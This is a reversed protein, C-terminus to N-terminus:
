FSQQVGANREPEGIVFVREPMRFGRLKLLEVPGAGIKPRLVYRLPPGDEGDRWTLAYRTTDLQLIEASALLRLFAWDGTAEAAQRLGAHEGEWTLSAYGDLGNGPWILPMFSERQNFHIIKTGDITLETRTVGPTPLAMVEMRYGADGHAYLQAGLRSLQGLAALFAPDLRLAQPGLEHPVWLDGQPRLVGGLRATVFRAIRGTDPRVYQGLEAFSAEAASDFFPYRASFASAFPAAVEARWAENLSAAAPELVTHWASDLPRTFLADGLGAWQAGLSAATLAADHRAQALESLKGQFVAQAQSLAMAQADPSAAIQQLRLRMIAAASLYHALSAGHLTTVPLPKGPNGAQPENTGSRSGDGVLALLPGFPGDLPHSAGAQMTQSKAKDGILSRAQEMLRDALAQSPRGAHANHQVSKMLAILPSTQTDALRTLQDIAGNLNRAPQWQISNLMGQWAAAYEAFYRATLRDRLAEAEKDSTRQAEPASANSDALVWDADQGRESAAKAIAEAVVGEWAARTYLGPVSQATDFLGRADTGDLLMTLSLDAYKGTAAEIVGQYRTDDANRLGIQNILTLRRAPHQPLHAAYFGALRQTTDLWEGIPMGGLQPWATALQPTLFATDVRAPNALMLYAKLRDYSRQQTDASQLADAPLQAVERLNEELTHAVPRQLEREAVKWYPQWLRELIADDRNLGARLHWPAGHQHRYELTEIEQQLALLARLAQPTGPTAAQAADAKESATHVLAVNGAFSVIMSLTWSMAGVVIAAALANPWYFGIRKGRAEGQGTAIHRWVPFLADPQVPQAPAVVGPEPASAPARNANAYVPAFMVGVLPARVWRAALLAACGAVIRERQADIYASVQAYCCIPSVHEKVYPDIRPLRLSTRGQLTDLLGPLVDATTAGPKSKGPRQSLLVGMEDFAEPQGGTAPIAHLMTVPAAWGLDANLRALTHSLEERDSPSEEGARTVCVMADVPRRRRLRRLQRRWAPGDIGTPEAHVLIANPTDLVGAAKLGPAVAEVLDANGTLLLWPRRYRWTRGYTIRLHDTLSHLRPDCARPDRPQAHDQITVHKRFLRGLVHYAGAGLVAIHVMVAAVLCGLILISASKKAEIDPLQVLDGQAWVIALAIAAFSVATLPPGWSIMQGTQPPAQDNGALAKLNDTPNTM